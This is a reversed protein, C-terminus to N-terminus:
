NIKDLLQERAKVPIKRRKLYIIAIRKSERATHKKYVRRLQKCKKKHGRLYIIYQERTQKYVFNLYHIMIPAWCMVVM